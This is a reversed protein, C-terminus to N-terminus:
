TFRRAQFVKVRRVKESNELRMDLGMEEPLAEM